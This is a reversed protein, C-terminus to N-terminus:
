HALLSNIEIYPICALAYLPTPFGHDFYNSYKEHKQTKHSQALSKAQTKACPEQESEEQNAGFLEKPM